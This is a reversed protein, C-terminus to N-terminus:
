DQHVQYLPPEGRVGAAQPVHIGQHVQRPFYQSFVVCAACSGRSSGTPSLITFICCMSCMFGKIFRDPFMNHFYLVHPVHIGQHIQRLFYQSFVVCAACSDRSSDTPSCYQSFVVCAACSDRSSDTPSLITFICCMRCMFGKIFRDLFCQSFVVCAACSDRSSDTPSLITFICCMRIDKNKFLVKKDKVNHLILSKYQTFLSCSSQKMKLM